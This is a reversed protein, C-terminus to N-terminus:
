QCQEGPGAAERGAQGFPADQVDPDLEGRRALRTARRLLSGAELRQACALESAPSVQKGPRRLGSQGQCNFLVKREDLPHQLHVAM